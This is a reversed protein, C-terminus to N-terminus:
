VIHTAAFSFEKTVNPSTLFISNERCVHKKGFFEDNIAPPALPFDLSYFVNYQSIELWSYSDLYFIVLVNITPKYRNSCTFYTTFEKTKDM